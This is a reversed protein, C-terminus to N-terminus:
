QIKLLSIEFVLERGALPHNGDFTVTDDTIDVISIKSIRGRSTPVRMEEGIRPVVHSPIESKKQTVVLDKKHVGYAEEAPISVVKKGGEEMGIIANEFGKIVKGDGITLHYPVNEYASDIVIGSKTSMTYQVKVRDGSKVTAM